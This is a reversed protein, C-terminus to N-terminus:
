LAVLNTFRFFVDRLYGNTVYQYDSGEVPYDIYANYRTFTTTTINQRRTYLTVPASVGATCYATVFAAHATNIMTEFYWTHSIFGDGVVIGNAMTTKVPYLRVPAAIPEFAFDPQYAAFDTAIVDMSAYAVGHGAALRFDLAM